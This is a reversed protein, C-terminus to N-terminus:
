LGAAGARPEYKSPCKAMVGYREADFGHLRPQRSTVGNSWLAFTLRPRV